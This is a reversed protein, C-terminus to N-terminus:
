KVSLTKRFRQAIELPKIAIRPAQVSPLTACEVLHPGADERFRELAGHFESTSFVLNAARYGLARATSCAFGLNATTSQGGTSEYAGNNLVIHCISANGSSAISAMEGLHMLVSGDGDLVYVARSTQVALALGIAAACGMSGLMYFNAGMDHAHFADRSVYGTSSVVLENKRRFSMLLDVYAKRDGGGSRSTEAQKPGVNTPPLDKPWELKRKLVLAVLGEDCTASSDMDDLWRAKVGVAGLINVCSREMEAHQPEDPTGARNSVVFDCAIGYPKLLSAIPNVLYGVGSNQCLVMSKKGALAAGAAHAVALAENVAPVYTMGPRSQLSHILPALWSCPVGSAFEIGRREIWREVRTLDSSDHASAV